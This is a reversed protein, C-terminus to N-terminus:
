LHKSQSALHAKALQVAGDLASGCPQIHSSLFETPLYAAYHPGIGGTLCLTDGPMFGLKLLCRRLYDAGQKMILQGWPDFAQASQIVDPAYAAFDAPKALVGFATLSTPDGAFKALIAKSLPTHDAIGDYCLITQELAARGLWAGSAQDSIQFGWGSLFSHVGANNVAVITGTGISLLYGDQGGLAGTITTARDDTVTVQSYPLAVAIRKQMDPGSVGALGIHAIALPLKWSPIEAKAAADKVTSIVNRVALDYDTSANAPGGKAHALTEGSAAEITARCGTGGGDVGIILPKESDTM